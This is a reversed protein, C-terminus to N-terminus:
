PSKAQPLRLLLWAGGGEEIGALGANPSSASPRQDQCICVKIWPTGSSYMGQGQSGRQGRHGDAANSETVDASTKCSTPAPHSSCSHCESTLLKRGNWPVRLALPLTSLKPTHAPAPHSQSIEPCAKPLHRHRVADHTGLLHM